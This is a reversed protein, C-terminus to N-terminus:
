EGCRDSQRGLLVGRLDGHEHFSIVLLYLLTFAGGGMVALIPFVFRGPVSRERYAIWAAVLLLHLAFDGNFQARWPHAFDDIFVEGSAMVGMKTVAVYTLGLIALWGLVLYARLLTM